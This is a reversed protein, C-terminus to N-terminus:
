YAFTYEVNEGIVHSGYVSEYEGSESTYYLYEGDEDMIYGEDNDVWISLPNDSSEIWEAWTMDKDAEYETGDITFTIKEVVFGVIDDAYTSWGPATKYAEVSSQPVYIKRGPANNTFNSYVGNNDELIPPIKAKCTIQTLATCDKCVNWGIFSIAAPFELSALSSCRLFARSKITQLTSPLKIATLSSCDTFALDDINSLSSNLTINKLNSCGYFAQTGVNTGTNIIVNQIQVAKYLAYPQITSSYCQLSTIPNERSDVTSVKGLINDEASIFQLRFWDNANEFKIQQIRNSAWSARNVSLRTLGSPITLRDISASTLAGSMLTVTPSLILEKTRISFSSPIEIISKGLKISNFKGSGFASIFQEVAKRSDIIVDGVFGRFANTGLTVISSPINVSTLNPYKDFTYAGVKLVGAPINLSGQWISDNVYLPQGSHRTSSDCNIQIWNEIDPIHIKGSSTPTLQSSISQIGRGLYIDTFPSGSRLSGTISTVSDPLSLSKMYMSPYYSVGLDIETIPEKFTAVGVNGSYTHTVLSSNPVFDTVDNQINQTATYRLILSEPDPYFPVLEAKNERVVLVYTTNPAFTPIEGNSWYLWAPLVVTTSVPGTTFECFYTGNQNATKDIRITLSDSSNRQKYYVGAQLIIDNSSFECTKQKGDEWMVINGDTNTIFLKPFTSKRSELSTLTTTTHIDIHLHYYDYVSGEFKLTDRLQFYSSYVWRAGTLSVPNTDTHIECDTYTGQGCKFNSNLVMKCNIFSASNTSASTSATKPTEVVCNQLNFNNFWFYGRYYITNNQVQANNLIISPIRTDTSIIRNNKASTLSNDVTNGFLYSSNQTYLTKFDFNAENGNDDKMYYIVGKGRTGVDAANIGIVCDIIFGTGSLYNCYDMIEDPIYFKSYIKNTSIDYVYNIPVMADCHTYNEVEEWSTALELPQDVLYGLTSYDGSYTSKIPTASNLEEMFGAEIISSGDFPEWCYYSTGKIVVTDGTLLMDYQYDDYDGGFALNDSSWGHVAPWHAYIEGTVRNMAYLFVHDYWESDFENTDTVLVLTNVDINVSSAVEYMKIDYDECYKKLYPVKYFYKTSGDIQIPTVEPEWDYYGKALTGYIGQFTNPQDGLCWNYKSGDNEIDYKLEWKSLDCGAFYTDGEKAIAKADSSLTHSDLAQVLLDFTHGTMYKSDSHCSQYDIIRYKQGPTLAGTEYLTRLEAYTIPQVFSVDGEGLLSQGGITKLDSAVGASVDDKLKSFSISRDEIAEPNITKSLKNM